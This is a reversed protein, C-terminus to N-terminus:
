FRASGLVPNSLSNGRRGIGDLGPASLNGRSRLLEKMKKFDILDEMIKKKMEDDITEKLKYITDASDKSIPEGTKWRDDFFNKL